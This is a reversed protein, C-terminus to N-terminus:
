ILKYLLMAAAAGALVLVNSMGVVILAAMLGASCVVCCATYVAAESIAGGRASRGCMTRCRTRAWRAWPSLAYLLAAGLAGIVIPWSFMPLMVRDMLAGAAFGIAAWAAVYMLVVAAIAAPRRSDRGYAVFFPAASPAMMAAMSLAMAM